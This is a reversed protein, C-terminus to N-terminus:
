VRNMDDYLRIAVARVEEEETVVVTSSTTNRLGDKTLISPGPLTTLEEIVLM